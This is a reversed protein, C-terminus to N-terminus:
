PSSVPKPLPWIGLGISEGAVKYGSIFRNHDESLSSVHDIVVVFKYPGGDGKLRAPFIFPYSYTGFGEAAQCTGQEKVEYASLLALLDAHDKILPLCTDTFTIRAQGAGYVPM